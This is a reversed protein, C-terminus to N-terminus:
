YSLAPIVNIYILPTPFTARRLHYYNHQLLMSSISGIFACTAAIIM